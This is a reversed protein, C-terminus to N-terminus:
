KLFEKINTQEYKKRGCQGNKYSECKRLRKSGRCWDTTVEAELKPCYIEIPKKSKKIPKKKEVKVKNQIHSEISTQEDQLYVSFEPINNHHYHWVVVASPFTASNSPLGTRSDIFKIRGKVLRIENAKMVYEHWWITDTRAPILGVVKCDIMICSEYAKKVWKGIERGYPPNMFCVGTWDQKLGDMEKDFYKECKASEKTACVDLTFHFEADLKKFFDM